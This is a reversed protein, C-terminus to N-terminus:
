ECLKVIKQGEGVKEVLCRALEFNAVVYTPNLDIFIFEWGEGWEERRGRPLRLFKVIWVIACDKVRDLKKWLVGPSNLNPWLM